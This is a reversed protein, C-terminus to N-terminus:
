LETEQWRIAIWPVGHWVFWVNSFNINSIVGKRQLVIFILIYVFLEANKKDCCVAICTRYLYRGMGNATYDLIYTQLRKIAPLPPEFEASPM